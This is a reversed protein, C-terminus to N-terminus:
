EVSRRERVLPRAFKVNSNWEKSLRDTCAGHSCRSAPAFSTPGLPTDACDRHGDECQRARGQRKRASRRLTSRGPDLHAVLVATGHGAGLDLHSGGLDCRGARRRVDAGTEIQDWAQTLPRWTTEFRGVGRTADSQDGRRAVGRAHDRDLGSGPHAQCSAVVHTEVHQVRCSLRERTMEDGQNRQGDACGRQLSEAGLQRVGSGGTDPALDLQAVHARTRVRDRDNGVGTGHRGARQDDIGLSRRKSQM